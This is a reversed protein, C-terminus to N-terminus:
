LPFLCTLFRLFPIATTAHESYGGNRRHVISIDCLLFTEAKNVTESVSASANHFVKNLM